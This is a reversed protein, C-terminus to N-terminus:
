RVLAPVHQHPPQRHGDARRRGSRRPVVRWSLPEGPQVFLRTATVASVALPTGIEGAAVLEQIRHVLPYFRRYYAVGLKVSGERCAAVMAHCEAVTLAMPKEVLVHKGARAAAITQPLHHRVPTAIYVADIDPSAILEDANAYGREVEFERCFAALQVPDRRCAAALRSHPANQIARAVRKRCVDGCGILGWRIDRM